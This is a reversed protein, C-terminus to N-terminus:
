GGRARDAAIIEIGSWSAYSGIRGGARSLWPAPPVLEVIQAIWHIWVAQEIWVIRHIRRTEAVWVIRRIRTAHEIWVIGCIWVAHEIRSIGVAWQVRIAGDPARM